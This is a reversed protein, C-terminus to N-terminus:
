NSQGEYRIRRQKALWPHQETNLSRQLIRMAKDNSTANDSTVWGVKGSLGYDEFIKLLITAINAGGHDGDIATFALIRARLEWDNKLPSAAIYHATVALYPDYSKSTWADFTISIQGPVNLLADRLKLKTEKALSLIEDRLKTSHPIDSDAIQPRQYRLL